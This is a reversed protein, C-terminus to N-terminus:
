MLSNHLFNIQFRKSCFWGWICTCTLISYMYALGRCLQYIYIYMCNCTTKPLFMVHHPEGIGTCNCHWNTILFSPVDGWHEGLNQVKCLICSYIGPTYETSYTYSTSSSWELRGQSPGSKWPNFLVIQCLLDYDDLHGIEPARTLSIKLEISVLLKDHTSFMCTFCLLWM